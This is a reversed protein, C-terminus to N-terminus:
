ISHLRFTQLRKKWLQVLTPCQCHLARCMTNRADVASLTPKRILPWDSTPQTILGVLCSAPCGSGFFGVAKRSANPNPVAFATIADPATVTGTGRRQSGRLLWRSSCLWHRLGKLEVEWRVESVKWNSSEVCNRGSIANCFLTNLTELGALVSYAFNCYDNKQLVRTQGNWTGVKLNGGIAV